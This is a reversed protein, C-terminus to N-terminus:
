KQSLSISSGCVNVGGAGMTLTHARTRTFTHPQLTERRSLLFLQFCSLFGMFCGMFHMRRTLNMRYVFYYHVPHIEGM